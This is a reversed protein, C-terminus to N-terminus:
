FMVSTDSMPSVDPQPSLEGTSGELETYRVASKEDAVEVPDATHGPMEHYVQVEPPDAYRAYAANPVYHPPAEEFQKTPLEPSPKRRRLILGVLIGLLLIMPVGIGLGLGISLKETSTM